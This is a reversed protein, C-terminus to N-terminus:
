CRMGRRRHSSRRRAWTSVTRGCRRTSPTPKSTSCATPDPPPVPRARCPLNHAILPVAPHQRGADPRHHSVDTFKAAAAALANNVWIDVPRLEEEVRRAATEVQEWEAMDTVM